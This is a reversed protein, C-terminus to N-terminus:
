WSAHASRVAEDCAEAIEKERGRPAQCGVSIRVAGDVLVSWSIDHRERVERYTVVPRGARLDTPNFDAFVGPQEAAIARRLAAATGELTEGHPVLSQTVHLAAGGQSPSNFQLRASGTDDTVKDVPWLAPVNVTVRGEMLVTVPQRAAEVERDGSQLMLVVAAAVAAAATWMLRRRPSAAEVPAVPAVPEARHRTGAALMREGRVTTVRVEGTARLLSRILRALEDAGYVGVAVDLYVEGRPDLRRAVEAVVREAVRQPAGVRPVVGIEPAPEGERPWQSVAVLDPAFEVVVAFRDSVSGCADALAQCRTRVDFRSIKHRLTESVVDVRQRPWTSPVILLAAVDPCAGDLVSEWLETWVQATLRAHDGLLVCPDDAGELAATALEPDADRRVGNRVARVAAPGIEVVVSM